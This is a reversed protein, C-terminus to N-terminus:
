DAVLEGLVIGPTTPHRTPYWGKESKVWEEDDSPQYTRTVPISEDKVMSVTKGSHIDPEERGQVWMSATFTGSFPEGPEEEKRGSDPTKVQVPAGWVFVNGGTDGELNWDEKDVLDVWFDGRKKVGPLNKRNAFDTLFLQREIATREILQQETIGNDGLHSKAPVGYFAEARQIYPHFPGHQIAMDFFLAQGLSTIVGRVSASSMAPNWYRDIVIADQADKMADEEAARILLDKLAPDNRLTVDRARIRDAYPRLQQAIVSSSRQLYGDVVTWLSGSALTFQFRGYSIIGADYTQYNAYGKGGEWASTIAFAALRTREDPM